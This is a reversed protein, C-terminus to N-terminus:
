IAAFDATQKDNFSKEAAIAQKKAAEFEALAATDKKFRVAAGAIIDDIQKTLLEFATRNEATAM